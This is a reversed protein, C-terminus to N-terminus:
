RTRTFWKNSKNIEFLEAARQLAKEVGEAMDRYSYRRAIDLARRSLEEKKELSAEVKEALDEPDPRCIVHSPPIVDEYCKAFGNSDYGRFIELLPPIATMVPPTGTAAAEVPPIGFSEAVSPFLFLDSVCYLRLVSYDTVGSALTKEDGRAIYREDDREVGALYATQAIDWAEGAVASIPYLLLAVGLRRRLIKFARLVAYLDKRVHNKAFFLLIKNGERRLEEVAKLLAEPDGHTSYREVFGCSHPNFFELDIGHHVVGIRERVAEAWEGGLGSLSEAFTRATFATPTVVYSVKEIWMAYSPPLRESENVFYGLCPRDWRECLELARYEVSGYPTGLVVAADVDESVFWEFRSVPIAMSPCLEPVDCFVSYLFYRSFLTPVPASPCFVVVDHGRGLLGRALLFSIKGFSSPVWPCESVIAIRVFVGLIFV